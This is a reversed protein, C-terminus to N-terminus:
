TRSFGMRLTPLLSSGANKEPVYQVTLTSGELAVEYADVAQDDEMM